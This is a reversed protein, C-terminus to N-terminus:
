KNLVAFSLEVLDSLFSLNQIAKKSASNSRNGLLGPYNRSIFSRARDDNKQSLEFINRFITNLTPHFAGWVPYGGDAISISLGYPPYGAFRRGTENAAYAVRYWGNDGSWFNSFLPYNVDGNWIKDVVQNAYAERLAVPDFDPNDYGWVAKINERNRVFTELAPVLRRAHSIDWGADPAIYSSDWKVQTKMKWKGDGSEEWGVPSVDGTYGAYRNDFYYRWFGKDVEARMGKQAKSLSTRALFLDFINKIGEKKNQLEEFAKKGDEAVPRVGSRYLESLDSLATLYWLDVDTFFYGSSGDKLDASSVHLRLRKNVSSFYGTTLWRNLHVTMTNVANTLFNNEAATQQ